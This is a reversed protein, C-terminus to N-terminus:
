FTRYRLDNQDLKRSAKQWEPYIEALTRWFGPGHNMHRLHVLEHAIVYDIEERSAKILRWNLRVEGKANCSGWRTRANTLLVRQPFVGLKAAFHQARPLFYRLARQRYWAIIQAEIPGGDHEITVCPRSEFPFALQGCLPPRRVRLEVAGGLYPLLEGDVWKPAPHNQAEWARIKELVWAAQQRITQDVTRPSMRVPATVTLGHHDVALGVTRRRTSRKLVFPIKHEGIHIIRSFSLGDRYSPSM